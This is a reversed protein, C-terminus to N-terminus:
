FSKYIGQLENLKYCQTLVSSLLFHMTLCFPKIPTLNSHYSHSTLTNGTNLAQLDTNPLLLAHQLCGWALIGLVM